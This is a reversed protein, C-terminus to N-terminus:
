RNVGIRYTSSLLLFPRQGRIPFQSFSVKSQAQLNGELCSSDSNFLPRWDIHRAANKSVRRPFQIHRNDRSFCGKPTFGCSVVLVFM